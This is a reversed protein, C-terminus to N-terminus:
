EYPELRPPTEDAYLRWIKRDHYYDALESNKDRGMNRAWLISANALDAGNYVWEDHMDHKPGYTVIVLDNGETSEL